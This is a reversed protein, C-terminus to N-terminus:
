SLAKLWSLLKTDKVWEAEVKPLVNPYSAEMAARKLRSDAKAYLETTEVHVHGLIDRIYVLNVGEQLLHMARSHRVCHCTFNKPVLGPDRKRIQVLYKELMYSVGSRTMKQGNRNPFLPYEWRSPDDLNARAIYSLLISGAAKSIPVIREKRGKGLIRVTMPYELHLRSRTLDCVEQVRAGTEYMCTMMALDRLGQSTRQDPQELLIKIGTVSMYAIDPEECKKAKISLAQNWQDIHAVDKYQMYRFFSHLAGLRVNRTSVCCKRDKELWSLFSVTNEKSLHEITLREPKVLLEKEFFMLLLSFCDSYSAITNTSVGREGPLYELFFKQLYYSLTEHKM